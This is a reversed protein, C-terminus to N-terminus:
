STIGYYVKGPKKFHKMDFNFFKSNKKFYDGTDKIEYLQQYPIFENISKPPSECPDKVETKVNALVKNSFMAGREPTATKSSMFCDKYKSAKLYEKSVRGLCDQYSKSNIM